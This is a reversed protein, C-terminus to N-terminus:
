QDIRFPIHAELITTDTDNIVKYTGDDNRDKPDHGYGFACLNGTEEKVWIEITLRLTEGKKIKTTPVNIQISKTKSYTGAGAPQTFDDSTGSAIETETTGDWKRLKAIFYIHPTQTGTPLFGITMSFLALGRLVQSKNMVVEYDHDHLLVFSSSDTRLATAINNSYFSNNTLIYIGSINESSVNAGYFLIYGTGSAVDIYNYSTLLEPSTRYIIPLAM